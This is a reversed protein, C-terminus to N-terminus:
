NAQELLFPYSVIVVGGGDPAPFSWRRVAQAICSEARAVGLSSTEVDAMHVAGSPAIVFKVQVRGSLDPRTTLEQEYCFRVENLHRQIVRRIAERSLSGRVEASESRITPVRGERGRFGGAGRGYGHGSGGGAGHGVTGLAGVGITGEGNSGGGRGTGRMGLGQFGFASGPQEGMLKGIADVPDYGLPTDQGFPSSLTNWSQASAALVGLIGAQQAQERMSPQDRALKREVANGQIAYSSRKKPAAQDGMEGEDGAHAKGDGGADDAKSQLWDPTQESALEPPQVLYRALRGDESLNELSLASAGPPMFYMAGILLGHVAFSLATWIQQRYDLAVGGGVVNAAQVSRVAFCFGRHYVRAEASDPLVYEYVNPLESSPQAHGAEILVSLPMSEAGITVAGRAGLPIALVVKGARELVVPLLPTGLVEAGILFDALPEEGVYYPRLQRLHEVRLVEDGWSIVLELARQASDVFESAQIVTGETSVALRHARSGDVLEGAIVASPALLELASV